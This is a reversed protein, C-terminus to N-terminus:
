IGMPFRNIAAARTVRPTVPITRKRRNVMGDRVLILDLSGFQLVEVEEASAARVSELALVGTLRTPFPVIVGGRIQCVAGCWFLLHVDFFSSTRKKILEVMRSKPLPYSM